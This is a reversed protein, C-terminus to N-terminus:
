SAPHYGHHSPRVMRIIARIMENATVSRDSALFVRAASMGIIYTMVANTGLNCLMAPLTGVGTYVLWTNAIKVGAALGGIAVVIGAVIKLAQDKDMERGAQHALTVFMAVWAATIVGVDAHATFVGVLGEAGLGASTWFITRRMNTPVKVSSYDM